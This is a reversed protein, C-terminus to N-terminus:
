IRQRVEMVSADHVAVELGLVQQELRREIIKVDFQRVEAEYTQRRRTETAAAADSARRM